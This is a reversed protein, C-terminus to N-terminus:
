PIQIRTSALTLCSSMILYHVHVTNLILTVPLFLGAHTNLASSYGKGAYVMVQLSIGPRRLDSSTSVLGKILLALIHIPKVILKLGISSTYKHSSIQVCLSSHSKM